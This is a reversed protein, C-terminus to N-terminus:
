FIGFSVAEGSWNPDLHPITKYMFLRLAGPLNENGCEACHVSFLNGM